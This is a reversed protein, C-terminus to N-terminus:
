VPNVLVVNPARVAVMVPAFDRVPDYTIPTLLQQLWLSAGDLLLTYGDAPAKALIGGGFDGRNDVIVQQGLNETLGRAIMRATFDSTGGPASTILRIPKTPYSQACAGGILIALAIAFLSSCSTSM